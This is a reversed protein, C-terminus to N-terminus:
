SGQARTACLLREGTCRRRQQDDGKSKRRQCGRGGRRASYDANYDTTSAVKPIAWVVFWQVRGRGALQWNDRRARCPEPASQVGARASGALM